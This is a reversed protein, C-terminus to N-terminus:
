VALHGAVFENRSRVLDKPAKPLEFRPLLYGCRKINRVPLIEDSIKKRLRHIYVEAANSNIAKSDPVLDQMFLEKPIIQGVRKLLIELAQAERTSLALPIDSIYAQQTVYNFTLSGYHCVSVTLGQRRRTLARVMALLSEHDLSVPLCRDFGVDLLEPAFVLHPESLLALTAPLPMVLDARRQVSVQMLKQPSEHVILLDVQRSQWLAPADALSAYCSVRAGMEELAQRLKQIQAEDQAILAVDLM